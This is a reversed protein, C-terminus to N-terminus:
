RSPLALPAWSTPEESIPHSSAESEYWGANEAATDGVTPDSWFAVVAGHEFDPGYLIIPTGDRPAWSMPRLARGQEKEAM